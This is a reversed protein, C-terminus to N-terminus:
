EAPATEALILKFARSSVCLCSGSAPMHGSRKVSFIIYKLFHDGGVSPISEIITEAVANDHNIQAIASLFASFLITHLLGESVKVETYM